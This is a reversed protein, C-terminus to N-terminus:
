LNIMSQIFISRGGFHPSSMGISQSFFNEKQWTNNQNTLNLYYTSVQQLKFDNKNFTFIKYGPNNGFIPSISPVFIDTIKNNGTDNLVLSGDRHTHGSIVGTITSQYQKILEFFAQSYTEKWFPVISQFLSRATAYSDIGPPIHFLLWAKQHQDEITKLQNNLWVLQQQAAKDINPGLAKTSFLVTNLIILHLNTGPLTLEYYGGQHFNDPAQWIKAVDTLFAGNSIMCYDPYKCEPGGYSDNNGIVEVIIKGSPLSNQISSTLFEFTKKVFENYNQRNKDQSYLLYQSRYLHALFDGLIFVADPKQQQIQEFMSKILTYDTAQHPQSFEKPSGNELIKSWESAPAQNLKAVVPCVKASNKCGSYPSFHIDSIVMIKYPAPTSEAFVAPTSFWCFFGFLFLSIRTM